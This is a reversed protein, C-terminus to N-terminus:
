AVALQRLGLLGYICSVQLAVAEVPTSAQAIAQKLLGFASGKSLLSRLM